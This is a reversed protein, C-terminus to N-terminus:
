KLMSYIDVKFFDGVTSLVGRDMAKTNGMKNEDIVFTAFSEALNLPILKLKENLDNPNMELMDKFMNENAQYKTYYQELMVDERCEKDCVYVGIEKFITDFKHGYIIDEFDEKKIYRDEFLNEFRIEKGTSTVLTTGGQLMHILKVKDNAPTKTDYASVSAFKANSEELEKNKASLEAIQSQMEKMMELIQAQTNDVVPAVKEEIAIEDAKEKKIAM